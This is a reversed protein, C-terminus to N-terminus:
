KGMGALWKKIKHYMELPEKVDESLEEMPCKGDGSRNIIYPVEKEYTVPIQYVSLVKKAEESIVVTYISTIGCLVALFAAARGIVKDALVLSIAKSKESKYLQMLPKVGRDCSTMVVDKGQVVVCTYNNDKLIKKALEIGEM